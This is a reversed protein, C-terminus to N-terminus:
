WGQDECVVVDDRHLGFFDLARRIAAKRNHAGVPIEYVDAGRVRFIITFYQVNSM